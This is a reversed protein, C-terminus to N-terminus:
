TLTGAGLAIMTRQFTQVYLHVTGLFPRFTVDKKGKLSARSIKQPSQYKIANDVLTHSLKSPSRIKGFVQDKADPLRRAMPFAM